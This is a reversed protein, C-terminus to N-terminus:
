RSELARDILDASFGGPTEGSAAYRYLAVTFIGKIASVIAALIAVYWIGVIIALAREVPLILLVILAGPLLLLVSILGFGFGGAVEEGWRKRFLEASRQISEFTTRNELIIVPVILYTVLTWALGLGPALLRVLLNRRNRLSSLLVGVTAAVLAWSAISGVRASAIRFGDRITPDGGSFRMNACGVLASNFYIVVFYNLYYWVFVVAWDEWGASRRALAELAGTQYLPVMFGAALLVASVASMVPFLLIEVDANLVAVSQKFLEWTRGLTGM